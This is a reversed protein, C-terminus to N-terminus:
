PFRFVWWKFFTFTFLGTVTSAAILAAYVNGPVLALVSQNTLVNIELALLNVLIYRRIEIYSPRNLKFIWYKNLIYAASGACVFSIGKAASYPLVKILPLYVGFDIVGVCAGACLFRAIEKRTSVTLYM